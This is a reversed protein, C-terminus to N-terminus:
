SPYGVASEIWKRPQFRIPSKNFDIEGIKGAGFWVTVLNGGNLELGVRHKSLANSIFVPKDRWTIGGRKGVLRVEFGEPYTAEAPLGRVFRARSERYVNVPCKMDLAEHPRVCNFDMRWRECAEQQKARTLAAFRELEAAMDRHMREHGGNDSPTAPRSRVHEIGLSLWWASLKTLGLETFSSVFPSGNDSHITRPLGYKIFAEEFVPRVAEISTTSLVAISLVYRSFADRITLPECRQKDTALWWGKFDVTWVDNPANVVLNPKQPTLKSRMPRQRGPQVLGAGKLVRDVSSRSPAEDPFKRAALVALKKSGWTPHQGRLLVIFVVVDASLKLPASHPRTSLDELGDVGDAEFRGLWKYGTKRSVGYERCLGAFNAGPSAAKLVFEERLSVTFLEKWTM